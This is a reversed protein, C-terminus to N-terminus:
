WSASLPVDGIQDNVIQHNNLIFLPYARAEGGIFVGIVKTGPALIAEEATLLEPVLIAPKSDKARYQILGHYPKAGTPTLSKHETPNTVAGGAPGTTRSTCGVMLCCSTVTLALKILNETM